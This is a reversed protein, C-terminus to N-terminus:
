KQRSPHNANINENAKALAAEAEREAAELDPQMAKLAERAAKAQMKEAERVLSLNPDPESEPGDHPSKAKAKEAATITGARDARSPHDANLAEVGRQYAADMADLDSRTSGSDARADARGANHNDKSRQYAAEAEAGGSHDVNAQRLHVYGRGYSTAATDERQRQMEPTVGYGDLNGDRRMIEALPRMAAVRASLYTNSKGTLDSEPHEAKITTIADARLRRAEDSTEDGYDLADLRRALELRDMAADTRARGDAILDELYGMDNREMSDIRVTKLNPRGLWLNFRADLEDASLAELEDRNMGSAAMQDILAKATASIM